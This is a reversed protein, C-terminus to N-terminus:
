RRADGEEAHDERDRMSRVSGAARDSREASGLFYPEDSATVRFIKQFFLNNPVQLTAGEREQMITFMLNRDIVRGKLNEPLIEVTEGLRFPHWITIFLSATMNSVMTWVALFGVGIVTATSVLFTWLGAVSVGWVNLILLGTGVWLIYSLTRTFFLVVDPPLHFRPQLELLIRRLARNLAINSLTAIALIVITGLAADVPIGYYRMWAALRDM